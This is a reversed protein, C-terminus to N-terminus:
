ILEGRVSWCDTSMTDQSAAAGSSCVSNALLLLLLSGAFLVCGADEHCRVFLQRACVQTAVRSCTAAAGHTDLLRSSYLYVCVLQVGM